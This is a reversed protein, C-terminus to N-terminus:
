NTVASFEIDSQAEYKHYNRFDLANRSCNASGRQCSLNEAHAPLLFDREGIRVRAYDVASEVTDMPFEKPLSRAQMEIRLVRGSAPDIWVSGKYAPYMSQSAVMVHWHSNSQQVDFDYVRATVGDATSQRRFRFDAATAPSLLDLLMSGFEGTSWAGELQDISKGAAKGNIAVNRYSERGKEYVVDTSVVDLAHWDLPRTTAVYRAMFEKCVYDPLGESFTEAAARAKAIYPDTAPPAPPAVASTPVSEPEAEITRRPAPTGRMLTPPGPDDRERPAPATPAITTATTTPEAATEAAEAPEASAEWSVRRAYLYGQDDSTSEVSVKDGPKMEAPAVEKTDKFFKTAASRRYELVRGDPVELVITKEDIKSLKGSTSTTPDDPKTSGPQGKKSGRSTPIPLGMPRPSQGPYPVPSRDIQALLAAQAALIAILV